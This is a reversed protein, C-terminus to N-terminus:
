IETWFYGSLKGWVAACESTQHLYVSPTRDDKVRPSELFYKRVSIVRM